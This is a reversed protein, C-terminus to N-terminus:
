KPSVCKITAARPKNYLLALEGFAGGPQYKFVPTDGKSQLFVAYEGSRVVFFHDGADGQQIIVEGEQVKREEMADVLDDRQEPSAGAFLASNQVVGFIFQRADPTKPYSVKKFEAADSSSGGAEASVAARKQTTKKTEKAAVISPDTAGAGIIYQMWRRAEDESGAKLTYTAADGNSVAFTCRAEGPKAATMLDVRVASSIPMSGLPPKKGGNMDSETKFYMLTSDNLKFYRKDFKGKKGSLLLLGQITDSSAPDSESGGAAVIADVWMRAQTGRHRAPLPRAQTSDNVQAISFVTEDMADVSVVSGECTATGLAPKTSTNSDEQSKHYALVQSGERLVFYRRDWKSLANGFGLSFRRLRSGAPQKGGSYKDLFGVTDPM